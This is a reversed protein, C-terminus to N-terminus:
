ASAESSEPLLETVTVGLYDAVQTLESVRWPVKGTMRRHIAPQSLGILGALAGQTANKRALGVRIATATAAQANERVTPSKRM